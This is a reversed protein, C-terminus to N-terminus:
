YRVWQYYEELNGLLTLLLAFQYLAELKGQLKLLTTARGIRGVIVVWIPM